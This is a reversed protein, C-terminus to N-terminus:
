ANQEAEKGQEMKSLRTQAKAAASGDVESLADRLVADWPDETGIRVIDPVKGAGRNLLEQLARVRANDNDSSEAIGELLAQARPLFAQFGENMERILRDRIKNYIAPPLPKCRGKFEGDIDRGRFRQCEFEDLEDVSLEGDLLMQHRSKGDPERKSANDKYRQHGKARGANLASLQAASPKRGSGKGPM